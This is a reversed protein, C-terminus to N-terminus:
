PSNDLLNHAATILLKYNIFLETIVNSLVALSAYRSCVAKTINCLRVYKITSRYYKRLSAEFSTKLEAQTHIPHAGIEVQLFKNYQINDFLLQM